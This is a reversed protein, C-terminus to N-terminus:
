ELAEIIEMKVVSSATAGPLEELSQLLLNMPRM